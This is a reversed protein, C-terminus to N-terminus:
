LVNVKKTVINCYLDDIYTLESHTVQAAQKNIINLAKKDNANM